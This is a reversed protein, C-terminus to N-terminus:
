NLFYQRMSSPKLHGLQHLNNCDIWDSSNTVTQVLADEAGFERMRKMRLDTAYLIQKPTGKLDPLKKIGFELNLKETENRQYNMFLNLIFNVHCKEQPCFAITALRDFFDTIFNSHRRVGQNSYHESLIAMDESKASPHLEQIYESSFSVMGVSFQEIGFGLKKLDINQKYGSDEIQVINLTGYLDEIDTSLDSQKSFSVSNESISVLTNKLLEYGEQPFRRPSVHPISIFAFSPTKDNAWRQNTSQFDQDFGLEKVVFEQTFSLKKIQKEEIEPHVSQLSRIFAPEKSVESLASKFQKQNIRLLYADM